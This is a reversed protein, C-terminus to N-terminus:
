GFQQALLYFSQFTIFLLLFVHPLHKGGNGSSPIRQGAEYVTVPLHRVQGWGQQLREVSCGQQFIDDAEHLGFVVVQVECRGRGREAEQGVFLLHLLHEDVQDLVGALVFGTTDGERCTDSGGATDEEAHCVVAGADLGFHLFTDEDGEEGGLGSTRTNAERQGALNYVLVVAGDVYMGTGALPTYKRQQKRVVM